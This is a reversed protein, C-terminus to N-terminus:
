NRSALNNRMSFRGWLSSLLLKKCNRVAKKVYQMKTPDRRIGKRKYYDMVYKQEDEPTKVHKPHGLKLFTKVYEKLLADTRDPFHLVEDISLIRFGKMLSKQLEFSVRPGM